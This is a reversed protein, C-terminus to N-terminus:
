GAKDTPLPVKPAGQAAAAAEQKKSAIISEKIKDLKAFSAGFEKECRLAYKMAMDWAKLRRCALAANLTIKYKLEPRVIKHAKQYLALASKGKGSQSLQIGLENLKAAFFPGVDSMGDMLKFAEGVKGTCLMVQAQAELVKSNNPAIKAAADVYRQATEFDGKEVYVSALNAKREVDYPNTKELTKFVDLAEDLRGTVLLTEGLSSASPRFMKNMGRASAYADAAAAYNGSAEAAKGKAFALRYDYTAMDGIADSAQKIAGQDASRISRSLSLTKFEPSTEDQMLEVARRTVAALEKAWTAMPVFQEIGFEFVGAMFVPSPEDCIIAQFDSICGVNTQFSKLLTQLDGGNESAFFAQVLVSGANLMAQAEELSSACSIAMGYDHGATQDQWTQALGLGSLDVLLCTWDM